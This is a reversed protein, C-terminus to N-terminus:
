LETVLATAGRIEIVQVKEGAAIIRDEEYARASWVEGGLKVAGRSEDNAIQETVIASSGILADTGTRLRPPMTVHRRAIPRLLGLLVVSSAIFALVSVAAPLGVLDLAAALLAGAAFPALFFGLTMIEGAALACAAIIWIVWLDM